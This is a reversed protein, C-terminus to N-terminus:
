LEDNWQCANIKSTIVIKCHFVILCSLWIGGGGFINIEREVASALEGIWSKVINTDILYLISNNNKRVSWKSTSTRLSVINKLWIFDMAFQVFRLVFFIIKNVIIRRCVRWWESMKCEFHNQDGFDIHTCHMGYCIEWRLTASM